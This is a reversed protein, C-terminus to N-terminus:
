HELREYCDIMVHHDVFTSWLYPRITCVYKCGLDTIQHGENVALGIKPISFHCELHKDGITRYKERRQAKM